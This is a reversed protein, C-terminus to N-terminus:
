PFWCSNKVCFLLSGQLDQRFIANGAKRATLWTLVIIAEGEMLVLSDAEVLTDGDTLMLAEREVLTDIDKLTLVEIDM